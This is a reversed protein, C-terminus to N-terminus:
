HAGVSATLEGGDDHLMIIRAPCHVAFSEVAEEAYVHHEANASYVILNWLAARTAPHDGQAAERWLKALESEISKIALNM